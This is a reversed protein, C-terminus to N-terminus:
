RHRRKTQQLEILTQGMSNIKGSIFDLKTVITNAKKEIADLLRLNENENIALQRKIDYKVFGDGYNDLLPCVHELIKGRAWKEKAKADNQQIQLYAGYQSMLFAYEGCQEAILKSLVPYTMSIIADIESNLPVNSMKTMDDLKKLILKYQDFQENVNSMKLDNRGNKM